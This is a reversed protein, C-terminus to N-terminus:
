RPAIEALAQTIWEFFTALHRKVMDMHPGGGTLQQQVLRPYIRHAEIFDLYADLVRHMREVMTGKSKFAEDLAERHASYYRELVREFLEPKSGWYYFVLAKNVGAADAIDRASVGDYGFKGLLVAAADLIKLAKEQKSDNNNKVEAM